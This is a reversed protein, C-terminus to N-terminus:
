LSGGRAGGPLPAGHPMLSAADCGCVVSVGPAAIVTAQSSVTSWGPQKTTSKEGAFSALKVTMPRLDCAFGGAFVPVGAVRLYVSPTVSGVVGQGFHVSRRRCSM